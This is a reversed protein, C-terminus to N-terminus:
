NTSEEPQEVVMSRQLSYYKDRWLKADDLADELVEKLEGGANVYFGEAIKITTQWQDIQYPKVCIASEREKQVGIGISVVTWLYLLCGLFFFLM